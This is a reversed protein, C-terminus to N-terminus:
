QLVEIYPRQECIKRQPGMASTTMLRRTLCNPASSHKRELLQASHIHCTSLFALMKKVPQFPGNKSAMQHTQHTHRYMTGAGSNRARMQVGNTNGKMRNSGNM